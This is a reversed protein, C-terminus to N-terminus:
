AHVERELNRQLKSDFPKKYFDGSRVVSDGWCIDLQLHKTLTREGTAQHRFRPASVGFAQLTHGRKRHSVVKKCLADVVRDQVGLVGLVQSLLLLHGKQTAWAVSVVAPNHDPDPLGLLELHAKGDLLKKRIWAKWLETSLIICFAFLEIITPDLEQNSWNVSAKVTCAPSYARRCGDWRDHNHLTCTPHVLFFWCFIILFLSMYPAPYHNSPDVKM